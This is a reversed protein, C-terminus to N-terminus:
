IFNKDTNLKAHMKSKAKTKIRLRFHKSTKTVNSDKM